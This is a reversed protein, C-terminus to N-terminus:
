FVNLLLFMGRACASKEQFDLSGSRPTHVMLHHYHVKFCRNLVSAFDGALPRLTHVPIGKLILQTGPPQMCGGRM